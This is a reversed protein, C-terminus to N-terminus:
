LSLCQVGEPLIRPLPQGTVYRQPCPRLATPVTGSSSSIASMDARPVHFRAFRNIVSFRELEQCELRLDLISATRDLRLLDNELKKSRNTFDGVAKSFYQDDISESFKLRELIMNGDNPPMHASNRKSCTLSCADGLSLKAVFYIVSDYYLAADASLISAPAPGLLHQLLQTTFILRRKSRLIQHGDEFMEFEDGVKEILRNSALAWDQESMSIDQVRKSGQTVKHWPLLEYTAIKRKKPRVSVTNGDIADSPLVSPAFPESGVLNAATSPWVRSSQSADSADIQEVPSHINLSQSPKVLSFQGAATRALRADYMPPMQGNRFTGYQKFWNPAMRLNGWSTEAHNSLVTNGTSQSQSDSEGFAVMGQAQFVSPSSTKVSPDERADTLFSPAKSNGHPSSKLASVSSLEDDKNHGYTSQQGAVATVQQEDLVRESPDTEVNMIAHVQRLPSYNQHFGHSSKLAQGFFGLNRASPNLLSDSALARPDSVNRVGTQSADLMGSSMPKQAREKGQQEESSIFGQSNMSSAGFESSRYGGEQTNLTNLESALPTTDMSDHNILSVKQTEMGSLHQQSPNNTWLGQPRVSAGGRAPMGSMYPSQSVPVAELVPFQQAGPNIFIQQSTGQSLARNSPSHRSATGPLIAQTSPGAGPVSFLHQTQLQNRPFTPSSTIEAISSGHMYSSSISSQGAISFKDDWRARPSSEHSQPLSQSSSPTPLWSQSKEGLDSDMQMQNPNSEPQLMGQSSFLTNSNSQRQSPPALKLAFGQSASSQNYMHAVSAGHTKAETVESLPNFGSPGFQAISSNEKSQDVKSLLHFMNQSSTRATVHMGSPDGSRCVTTSTDARKSDYTNDGQYCNQQQEYTEGERGYSNGIVHSSNSPQHQKERIGENEEKNSFIIRKMYDLKNNDQVQHSTEQHVKTIHSNQLSHFDFVHSNERNRLTDESGSQVQELQGTSRSFSNVRCDGDRKWLSGDSNRKYMAESEGEPKGSPQGAIGYSDIRQQRPDCESHENIQSAWTNDLRLHPQVQQSREVSLKQQPNRDLWESTNKPSKQISEHYEDQHETPFQIGPQPFGPFSSNVSSDNLMPFPKSSLSSASQLNNDAWSGQQKESDLINSSQNGTSLDTNQFTLGSWEEQPGTDSSSAEAVASQMLASWSGSQLSPFADSYGTQEFANGFGGAGIDSRKVMSADWFNDETNFLIKEEMPDLPVLGQSPGHQMTKKQLTGLWGAPDQKGSIEQLSANAQLTNGQQLNGLTSGCNLGQNTVQGLVNKGQFGQKSIFAGQPLCAQEPSATTCHDGVFPNTFGSSQMVPKQTQDSAKALLNESDHSMAQLHSYQNLTGRGSAVPTGYLSVDFQQPAPGMSSLTQGQEQSFIVRNSVNQGAPSGGRQVWNMFMQSTDNVPTGNILPSFQVGAAQKNMASLQNVSNQQRTDGFQQLQQQRQLEQLNKFMVHQQLLQMDTYGSQQMSHLQPIGQQQGRVLQQQKGVFNFETSAETIESRESNTTLTPSDGAGSANEQESQLISLGRSTLNHPSFVTSEGLFELQNQREGFDQRGLMFGNTKLHLDTTQINSLGPRQALQTYNKDFTLSQNGRGRVSDLQQVNSKLNFSLPESIERQKEHWQNYLVPWNGDAVQSQRSYNDLEYLKHIRGEIENGPM